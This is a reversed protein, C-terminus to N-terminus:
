PCSRYRTQRGAVAATQGTSASLRLSLLSLVDRWTAEPNSIFAGLILPTIVVVVRYSNVALSRLLKGWEIRQWWRLKSNVRNFLAQLFAQWVEDQNSLQWVNIWIAEIGKLEQEMLRMLSTKGSGWSGYLGITLPPVATRARGALVEAYDSFGFRDNEIKSIESDTWGRESPPPKDKDGGRKPRIAASFRQLWSM